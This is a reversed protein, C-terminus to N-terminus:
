KETNMELATQVLSFFSGMSILVFTVQHPNEEEGATNSVVMYKVNDGGFHAEEELCGVIISGIMGRKDFGAAYRGGLVLLDIDSAGGGEYYDPKLKWRESSLLALSGM